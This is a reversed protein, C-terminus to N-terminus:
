LKSLRVVDEESLGLIMATQEVSNGYVLSNKVMQAKGQELGEQLGEKKKAALSIKTVEEQDFLSMMM